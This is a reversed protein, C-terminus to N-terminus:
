WGILEFASWDFPRATRPPGRLLHVQAQRLAQRPSEGALLQRHFAVFLDVASADSVDWLGGVVARAGAALFARALSNTGEGHRTPGSATSCAALVVLRTRHLDLRSIDDARLSGDSGQGRDEAFLLQSRFPLSVDEIAHGAFHILPAGGAEDVFRRRTAEGRTLLLARPYLAAISAAELEAAPLEPLEPHARRDVAPDGIVLAAGALAPGAHRTADLEYALLRASPTVGLAFDEVLFRGSAPDRLAAWPLIQLATDCDFVLTRASIVARRVPGILLNYALSAAREFQGSSAASGPGRRMAELLRMFGSPVPYSLAQRLGSRDVVWIYLRDGILAHTLLSTAGPLRRALEAVLSGPRGAVRRRDAPGALGRSIEDFLVRARQQELIAFAAEPDHLVDMQLSVMEEFAERAKDLYAAKQDFDSIKARWAEILDISLALDEAAAAPKGAVRLLRARALLLSATQLVQGDRRSAALGRDLLELREADTGIAGEAQALAADILVRDAAQPSELHSGILRADALDAAAQVVEHEAIRDRARLILSHSIAVPNALARAQGVAERQFYLAAEPLGQQAAARAAVTFVQYRRQADDLIPVAALARARRRWAEETEGEYDFVEAILNQIGAVGDWDAIGRFAGLAAEFSALAGSLDGDEFSALGSMWLCEAALAPYGLDAAHRHVTALLGLARRRHSRYHEACALGYGARLAFPSGAAALDVGARAYATAADNYDGRSYSTAARRYAAYGAAQRQRCSPWPLCATVVAVAQWTLRDGGSAALAAALRAAAAVNTQARTDDGALVAEGWSGLLEEEALRRAMRRHGNVARVLDEESGGAALTRLDEALRRSGGPMRVPLADGRARAEASWEPEGALRSCWLWDASARADLALRAFALGRNFRAPALYPNARVAREAASLARVYDRPSDERDGRDVLLAALDSEVVADEPFRTTTDELLALAADEKGALLKIVARDALAHAGPWQTLNQELRRLAGMRRPSLPVYSGAGAFRAYGFGALRGELPRSPGVVTVIAQRSPWDTAGGVRVPMGPSILSGAAAAVVGGVFRTSRVLQV